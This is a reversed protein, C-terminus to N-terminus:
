IGLGQEATHSEPTPVQFEMKYGSPSRPTPLKAAGTWFQQRVPLNLASRPSSGPLDPLVHPEQKKKM